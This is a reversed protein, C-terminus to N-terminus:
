FAASFSSLLNDTNFVQRTVLMNKQLVKNKKKLYVFIISM